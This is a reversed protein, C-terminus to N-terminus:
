LVVFRDLPRHEMLFRAVPFGVKPVFGTSLSFPAGRFRPFVIFIRFCIRRFSLFLFLPPVSWWEFVHVEECTLRDAVANGERYIHSVVLNMASKLRRVRHWRAMLSWPVDPEGSKLCHVVYTSDSELWINIWGRDHALEIAYFVSALEAEFAFGRGHSVAFCSRFVGFQDRFVGGGTLDGPSGAAGGDINVKMMHMPPVQWRIRRITPARPPRGLVGCAALISLDEVSNRMPATIGAGAERIYAWILTVICLRWLAMVQPNFTRQFAKSLLWPTWHCLSFLHDM